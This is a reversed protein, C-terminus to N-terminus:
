EHRMSHGEPLSCEDSDEIVVPMVMCELTDEGTEGRRTVTARVDHKGVIRRFSFFVCLLFLVVSLCLPKTLLIFSQSLRHHHERPSPCSPPFRPPPPPALVMGGVHKCANIPQFRSGRRFTAGWLVPQFCLTSRYFSTTIKLVIIVKRSRRDRQRFSLINM